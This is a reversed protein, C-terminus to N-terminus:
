IRYKECEPHPTQLWEMTEALREPIIRIQRQGTKNMVWVHGEEEEEDASVNNTGLYENIPEGDEDLLSVNEGAVRQSFGAISQEVYHQFLDKAEELTAAEINGLNGVNVTFPM